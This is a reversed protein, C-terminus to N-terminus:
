ILLHVQVVTLPLVDVDGGSGELHEEPLKRLREERVAGEVVEDVCDTLSVAELGTIKQMNTRSTAM